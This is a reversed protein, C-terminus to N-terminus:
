STKSHYHDHDRRRALYKENIYLVKKDKSRTYKKERGKRKRILWCGLLYIPLVLEVAGIFVYLFQKASTMTSLHLEVDSLQYYSVAVIFGAVLVNIVHLFPIDKWRFFMREIQEKALLLVAISIVCLLMSIFLAAM